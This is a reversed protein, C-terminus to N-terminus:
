RTPIFRTPEGRSWPDYRAAFALRDALPPHSYLWFRIFPPPDPDSLNTEGLIQFADAAARARDAVVGHNVELSFVDADHERARSYGNRLPLALESFLAFFLILLPASAYDALGRIRWRGGWRALAWRSARDVLFLLLFGLLTSLLIGKWIHRLVYHGMEHGFVFLTQPATMKKLTTDWIVVRQSKGFGTVYANVSRRKASANMEFMRDRPIQLGARSTLTEIKSILDPQKGALPTFRFFLPDLVLPALFVLLITVPLSCAGVVAWWSRPLRRIAAYTLWALPVFILFGIAGEKLRDAIWSPWSQVSLGYRRALDQSAVGVPLELLGQLLGLPVFVLAAQLLSRTSRREAWDRLKPAVRAALIGTLVLLGWAFGIFHLRYRARSYAVAQREREPTLTYTPADGVRSRLAPTPGPEPTAAALSSALLIAAFFPSASM